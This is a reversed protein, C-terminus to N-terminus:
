RLKPEGLNLPSCGLPESGPKAVKKSDLQEPTPIIDRLGSKDSIFFKLDAIVKNFDIPPLPPADGCGVPNLNPKNQRLWETAERPNLIYFALSFGILARFLM